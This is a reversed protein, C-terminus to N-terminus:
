GFMQDFNFGLGLGLNLEYQMESQNFQKAWCKIRMPEETPAISIRKACNKTKRCQNEEEEVEQSQKGARM